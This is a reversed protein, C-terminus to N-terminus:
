AEQAEPPEEAARQKLKHVENLEIVKRVGGIEIPVSSCDHEVMGEILATEATKFATNAQSKEESKTKYKTALKKVPTPVAHTDILNGQKPRSKKKAM